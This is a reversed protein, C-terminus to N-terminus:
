AQGLVSRALLQTASLVIVVLVLRNFVAQDIRRQIANGLFIGVCVCAMVLLFIKLIEGSYLSKQAYSLVQASTTVALLVNLLVLFERKPTNIARLYIAMPIAFVSTVGGILGAGVGILPGLSRVRETSISLRSGLRGGFMSLLTFALAVVGIMGLLATDPLVVLLQAGLATGAAMAAGVPVLLRLHKRYSVGRVMVLIALASVLNVLSFVVVAARGGIMGALIVSGIIPLGFGIAGKVVGAFVLGVAALAVGVDM